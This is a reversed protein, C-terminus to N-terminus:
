KKASRCKCIFAHKLRLLLISFFFTFINKVKRSGDNAFGCKHYVAHPDLHIHEACFHPQPGVFEMMAVNRCRSGKKLNTGHCQIVDQTLGRIDRVSVKREMYSKTTQAPKKVFLAANTRQQAPVPSPYQPHVTPPSNSPISFSGGHVFDPNQTMCMSPYLVQCGPPTHIPSYPIVQPSSQQTKSQSLLSHRRVAELAANMACMHRVQAEDDLQPTFPYFVPMDQGLTLDQASNFPTPSPTSVSPTMTDHSSPTASWPDGEFYWVTSEQFPHSTNVFDHPVLTLDQAGDSLWEITAM